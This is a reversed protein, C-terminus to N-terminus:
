NDLVKYSYSLGGLGECIRQLHAELREKPKMAGWKKSTTWYPVEISSTMAQYAEVNLNISQTAPVCKRYKVTIREKNVKKTKNDFESVVMSFSEYGSGGKYDKHQGLQELADASEQSLMVRGPLIVNLSVKIENNM